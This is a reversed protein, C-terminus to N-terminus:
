RHNSNEQSAHSGGSQDDNAIKLIYREMGKQLIVQNKDIAQVVFDGIKDGEGVPIGNILALPKQQDLILGSLVLDSYELSRQEPELKLFPDTSLKLDLKEAKFQIQSRIREENYKVEPFTSPINLGSEGSKSGTASPLSTIPLPNKMKKPKPLNMIGVVVLLIGMTTAIMKENKTM